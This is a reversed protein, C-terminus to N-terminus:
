KDEQLNIPVIYRNVGLELFLYKHLIFICDYSQM